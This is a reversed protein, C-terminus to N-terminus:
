AFTVDLEGAAFQADDGTTLSKSTTLAGQLLPNGATSADWISIHSVTETNSVSTWTIAADNDTTGGAAAAFAGADIRTTEAAPNSTADVGPAGIHLKVFQGTPMTYSGVGLVHDLLENAAFTTFAGSLTVDLDGIAIEFDDGTEVATDNLTGIFLPNGATSADWISIDTYTEDTSVNSWTITNTNSATLGSAAGFTAEIRTTETAANAAASEGPAGTHLKVYVNTPATYSGTGLVHDLLENELYDSMATM